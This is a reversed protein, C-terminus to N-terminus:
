RSAPFSMVAARSITVANFCPLPKCLELAETYKEWTFNLLLNTELLFYIVHKHVLTKFMHTSTYVMFHIWKSM